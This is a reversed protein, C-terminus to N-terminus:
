VSCQLTYESCVDVAEEAFRFSSREKSLSVPDSVFEDNQVGASGHTYRGFLDLAASERVAPGKLDISAM